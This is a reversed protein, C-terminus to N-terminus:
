EATKNANVFQEKTHVVQCQKTHLKIQRKVESHKTRADQRQKLSNQKRTHLICDQRMCIYNWNDSLKQTIKCETGDRLLAKKKHTHVRIWKSEGSNCNFWVETNSNKNASYASHPFFFRRKPTYFPRLSLMPWHVWDPESWATLGTFFTKM